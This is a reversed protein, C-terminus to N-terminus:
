RWNVTVDDTREYPKIDSNKIKTVNGAEFMIKGTIAIMAVNDVLFQNEPVFM